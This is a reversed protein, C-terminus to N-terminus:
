LRSHPKDAKIEPIEIEEGSEMKEIIGNNLDINGLEARTQPAYSGTASLVQSQHSKKSPMMSNGNSRSRELFM